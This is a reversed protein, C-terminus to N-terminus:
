PAAGAALPRVIVVRGWNAMQAPDGIAPETVRVHDSSLGGGRLARAVVEARSAALRLNAATDGEPSAYGQVVFAWGGANAALQLLDYRGQSTLEASGGAFPVTLEPPEPVRVWTAQQRAVAAYLRVQQGGGVGVIEVAGAAVNLVAVGDEDLPIPMGGVRIEDGPRAVVVLSGQAPLPRLVVESVQGLTTQVRGFGDARLEAHQDEGYREILAPTADSPYVGCRPHEIWIAADPWAGTPAPQPAPAEPERRARGPGVTLAAGLPGVEPAWTVRGDVRLLYSDGLPVELRGGAQLAPQPADGGLFVGLGAVVWPTPASAPVPLLRMAADAFLHVASDADRTGVVEALLEADLKGEARLGVTAGLGGGPDPEVGQAGVWALGHTEWVPALPAATALTTM